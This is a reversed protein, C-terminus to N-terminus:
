SSLSSLDWSLKKRKVKQSIGVSSSGTQQYSIYTHIRVYVFRKIFLVEINGSVMYVNVKKRYLSMQGKAAEVGTGKLIM